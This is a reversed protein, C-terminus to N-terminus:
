IVTTVLKYKILVALTTILNNVNKKFTTIIIMIIMVTM